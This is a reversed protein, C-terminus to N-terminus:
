RRRMPRIPCAAASPGSPCIDRAHHGAHRVVDPSQLLLAAAPDGRRRGAGAGPPRPLLGPQLRRHHRCGRGRHCAGYFAGMDRPSRRACRRCAWSTPTARARRGRRRDGGSSRDAGAAASLGAGGPGCRDAAEGAPFRRGEIWSHAEAIPPPAVAALLPNLALKMSSNFWLSVSACLLFFSRAACRGWSDPRPSDPDLANLENEGHRQTETTFRIKRVGLAGESGSLAGAGGPNALAERNKVPRGHVVDRVALEVIKGSKTRPIDAVQSSRPRCTARRPTARPDPGQDEADAGRRACPGHQLRVFLVVRVDGQWDQGIVISEAVEPLQEVQRYIEATGIRVGGPNLVADSRGYIILRWARDARCLRWPVLRQPLPRFLRTLIEARRPRELLRDPMRPSPRRRLGARGERGRVPKGTMTGSRSRWARPRAGPDRRALGARDPNGLVFCSVIDTGGSISSLCVDKKIADYVYDFSEPWWRRAPRPSPACRRCTTPRRRPKSGPRPAPTSSNRRPASSPAASPRRRLRVPHQRRSPLALRRLAALTAGSALGSVLWNWMMWGCTTFYFM